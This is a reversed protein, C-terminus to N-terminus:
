KKFLKEFYVKGEETKIKKFGVKSFFTVANKNTSYTFVTIKKLNKDKAYKFIKQIMKSGLGNKRLGKELYVRRVEGGYDTKYLGCTGVIKGKEEVVLFLHYGSNIDVLDSIDKPPSGYTEERLRMVFNAVAKKDKEQYNRIRVM